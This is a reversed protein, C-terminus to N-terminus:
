VDWLPPGREHPLCVNDAAAFSSTAAARDRRMLIHVARPINTVSEAHSPSSIATEAKPLVATKVRPITSQLSPTSGPHAELCPEYPGVRRTASGCRRTPQSLVQVAPGSSHGPAVEVAARPSGRAPSTSPPGQLGDHHAAGSRTTGPRPPRAVRDGQRWLGEIGLSQIGTGQAWLRRAHEIDLAIQARLAELTAFTRDERLLSLEGTPSLLEPGVSVVALLVWYHQRVPCPVAHRCPM